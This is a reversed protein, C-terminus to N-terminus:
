VFMPSKRMTRAAYRVDRWLDEMWNGRETDGATVTDHKPMRQSTEWLPYMDDLEALAKPYAESETFGAGRLEHYQDDLHQALEEILGAEATAELGLPQLRERVIKKWNPM